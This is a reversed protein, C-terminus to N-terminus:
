YVIERWFEDLIRKKRGTRIYDTAIIPVNHMEMLKFAVFRLNPFYSRGWRKRFGENEFRNNVIIFDHIIDDLLGQDDRFDIWVMGGGVRSLILPIMNYLRRLGNGKLVARVENWDGCEECLEFVEDNVSGRLSLLNYLIGKFREIRCYRHIPRLKGVNNNKWQVIDYQMEVEDDIVLYKDFAFIDPPGYTQISTLSFIPISADYRIPKAMPIPAM